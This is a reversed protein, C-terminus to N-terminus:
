NSSSDSNNHETYLGLETGLLHPKKKKIEAEKIEETISFRTIEGIYGEEGLGFFLYFDRNYSNVTSGIGGLPSIQTFCNIYM